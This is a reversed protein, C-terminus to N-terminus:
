PKQTHLLLAPNTPRPKCTPYTPAAAALAVFAAQLAINSFRM